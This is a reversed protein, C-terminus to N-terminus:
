EKYTGKTGEKERRRQRQRLWMLAEQLKTIAIATERSPVLKSKHRLDAIQMEILSEHTIGEFEHIKEEPDKSGRVFAIKLDWGASVLGKEKEVTFAPLNYVRGIDEIEFDGPAPIHKKSKETSM